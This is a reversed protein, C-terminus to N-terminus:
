EIKGSCNVYANEAECGIPLDTLIKDALCRYLRDHPTAAFSLFLARRPYAPDSCRSKAPMSRPLVGRKGADDGVGDPYICSRANLQHFPETPETSAM